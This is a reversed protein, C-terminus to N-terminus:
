AFVTGECHQLAHIILNLVLALGILLTIIGVWCLTSDYAPKCFTFKEEGFDEEQHASHDPAFEATPRYKLTRYNRHAKRAQGSVSYHGPSM